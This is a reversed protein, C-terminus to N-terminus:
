WTRRSANDQAGYAPYNCVTHKTTHIHSYTKDAEATPQLGVQLWVQLYGLVPRFKNDEYTQMADCVLLATAGTPLEWLLTSHEMLIITHLFTM